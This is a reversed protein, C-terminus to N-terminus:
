QIGILLGCDKTAVAENYKNDFTDCYGDQNGLSQIRGSQPLGDDMKRDIQAARSPTVVAEGPMANAGLDSINIFTPVFVLSIGPVRTGLGAMQTGPWFGGGLKSAPDTVGFSRAVSEHIGIDTVGAILNTKLLHVWLLWSEDDPSQPPVSTATTGGDHWSNLGIMGDDHGGNGTESVPNCNVNCGPIREAANSIDGPLGGYIDRFGTIAADYSKVQAMTSTVRANELLEQGKLIGGILLGIITMVIALEVLTFAKSNM